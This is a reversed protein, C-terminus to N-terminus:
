YPRTPESIHILSLDQAETGGAGAHIELYCDNADAEGSLLTQLEAKAARARVEKLGTEAEEVVSADDEAEALELLELNDALGSELGHIEALSTELQTRERM